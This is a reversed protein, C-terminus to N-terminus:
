GLWYGSILLSVEVVMLPPLVVVVTALGDGWNGFGVASWLWRWQEWNMRVRIM